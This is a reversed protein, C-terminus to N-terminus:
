KKKKIMNNLKENELQLSKNNNEKEKLLNNLYEKEKLQKTLQKNSINMESLNNKM